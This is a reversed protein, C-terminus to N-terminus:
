SRHVPATPMPTGANSERTAPTPLDDNTRGGASWRAVTALLEQRDIPKARFDDCGADLCKQCDEVMAHATLAVIPGTYGQARLQRTATYGDMVPMQMDMLIIDFPQGQEWAVSAREVALQGNEVVTVEAGAKRLLLCILRQNDPGDEALLIRGHLVIKGPAVPTTQEVPEIVHEQTNRIMRIGELPGPDITVSFTSGKNPASRVEITGGLAEALRKSICLGLGTGSFKRTSSSDVQSFPQFLKGVQEESMGIGTDTVEFQLRAPASDSILRIALRVEGRDTFKIANGVLNVLVQRLRLPDTLITEPLLGALDTQLELHKTAAQGRMLSVVEALLQVPSCRTPEIELKGAEIKSLDLIGNILGLLHEGNRQITSVAERSADRRQCETYNPCVPCCIMEEWLVDAYGLIATMPTRIEHSMNALFESKARAAVEAVLNAKQLAVTTRTIEENASALHATRERVRAELQDHAERIETIDRFTQRLGLYNGEADFIPQWSIAVWRTAGDKCCIRASLDHGSTRANHAERLIAGVRERDEEHIADHLFDKMALCEEPSYGQLREVARNIWMLRGDPNTWTEMDHTYEAIARFREQTLQIERTKESLTARWQRVARVSLLWTAFLGLVVVVVFIAGLYVRKQGALLAAQASAGLLASVRQMGASYVKKLTEYETSFMVAQADKLRGQRALVFALNEMEVLKTNADNTQLAAAQTEPNASLRIAESIADDLQPCYQRYRDEWRRDGTVAAMRASMTLVEDLHMIAGRLQEIRFDRKRTMDMVGYSVYIDWGMWSIVLATLVSTVTLLRM